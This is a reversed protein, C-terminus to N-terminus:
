GAPPPAPPPNEDPQAQGQGDSGHLYGKAKESATDFQEDHGAFREKLASAGRDVGQDAKDPNKGAWEKVKDLLDNLGL